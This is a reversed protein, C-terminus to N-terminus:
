YTFFLLAFLKGPPLQGSKPAVAPRDKCLSLLNGLCETWSVYEAVEFDVGVLEPCDDYHGEDAEGQSVLFADRTVVALVLMLDDCAQPSLMPNGTFHTRLGEM